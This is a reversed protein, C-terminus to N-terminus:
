LLQRVAVRPWTWFCRSSVDPSNVVSEYACGRRLIPNLAFDQILGWANEMCATLPRDADSKESSAAVLQVGGAVGSWMWFCRSSVDAFDRSIPYAWECVLIPNLLRECFSIRGTARADRGTRREPVSARVVM